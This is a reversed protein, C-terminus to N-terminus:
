LLQGIRQLIKKFVIHIRPIVKRPKEVAYMSLASQQYRLSYLSPTTWTGLVRESAPRKKWALQWGSSM